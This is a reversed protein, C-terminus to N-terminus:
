HIAGGYPRIAYARFQASIAIIAAVNTTRNTRHRVPRICYAGVIISIGFGVGKGMCEFVVYSMLFVIDSTSFIIDSM